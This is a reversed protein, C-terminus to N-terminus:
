TMECAVDAASTKATSSSNASAPAPASRGFQLRM